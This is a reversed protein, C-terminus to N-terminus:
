RPAATRPPLPSRSSTAAVRRSSNPRRRTPVAVDVFAGLRRAAEFPLGRSPLGPVSVPECLSESGRPSADLIAGSAAGPPVWLDSGIM